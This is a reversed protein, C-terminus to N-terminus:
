NVTDPDPLVDYWNRGDKMPVDLSLCYGGGELNAKRFGSIFKRVLARDAQLEELSVEKQWLALMIEQCVDARMHDPLGRPVLANVALLDAHEGRVEILYPYCLDVRKGGSSKKVTRIADRWEPPLVLGSDRARWAISSPTRGLADASKELSVKAECLAKLAVTEPRKWWTGTWAWSAGFGASQAASRALLGSVSVVELM